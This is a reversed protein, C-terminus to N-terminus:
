KEKGCLRDEIVQYIIDYAESMIKEKDIDMMIEKVKNFIIEKNDEIAQQMYTYAKSDENQWADRQRFVCYNSLENIIKITKDKIIDILDDDIQEDVAKWIFKYASNSIIRDLDDKRIAERVQRIVEEKAIERIEEESLYDEIRLEM